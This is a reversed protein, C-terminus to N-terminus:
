KKFSNHYSQSSTGSSLLRIEVDFYNEITKIIEENWEIRYDRNIPSLYKSDDPVVYTISLYFKDDFTPSLVFNIDSVGDPKIVRIMKNILKTLTEINTKM